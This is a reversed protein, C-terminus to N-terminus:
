LVLRSFGLSANFVRGFRRGFTLRRVMAMMAVLAIKLM